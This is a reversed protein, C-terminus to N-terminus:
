IGLLAMVFSMQLELFFRSMQPSRGHSPSQPQMKHMRLLALNLKAWSTGSNQECVERTKTLGLNM